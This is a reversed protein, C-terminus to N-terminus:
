ARRYSAVVKGTVKDVVDFAPLRVVILVPVQESEVLTLDRVSDNSSYRVLTEGNHCYSGRHIDWTTYFRRRSPDRRNDNWVSDAVYVYVEGTETDASKVDAYWNGTEPIRLRYRRDEKRVADFHTKRLPEATAAMVAVPVAMPATAAVGIGLAGALRKLFGRRGRCVCKKEWLSCRPCFKGTLDTEM